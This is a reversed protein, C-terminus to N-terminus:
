MRKLYSAVDRYGPDIASLKQFIDKAKSYNNTEFYAVGLFYLIHMDSSYRKLGEKLVKLAEAKKGKSLLCAGLNGYALSYGGAGVAKRYEEIAGGLDGRLELIVGLTNHNSSSGPRLEIARRLHKEAENMKNQKYYELGLNGQLLASNPSYQLDHKYFRMPDQWQYNRAVTRSFLLVVIVGIVTSLVIKKNRSFGIWLKEIGMSLLVFFGMSSFYLWHESMTANVAVINLYPILWVVYWISWFRAQLSKHFVKKWLIFSLTIAIIGLWFSVDNLGQFVFHREMHLHLPFILLGLYKFWIIPITLLRVVLSQQAILSVLKGHYFPVNYFRFMLYFGTFIFLLTVLGKPFALKRYKKSLYFYYLLVVLPFFIALEKSLLALLYFILCLGFWISRKTAVGQRFTLLGLIVFLALLLDARGALYTVAQAHVPHVVFFLASLFSVFLGAERRVLFYFAISVLLHILLSTIHYGFSALGYLAYDLRYSIIQLPRYFRSTEGGGYFINTILIKDLYEWSTIFQNRSILIEDDCIFPVTFSNAYSSIGIIIILLIFGFDRKTMSNSHSLLPENTSHKVTAARKRKPM